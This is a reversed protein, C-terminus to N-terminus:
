KQWAPTWRHDWCRHQHHYSSCVLSSCDITPSRTTNWRLWVDPILRLLHDGCRHHFRRVTNSFILFLRMWMALSSNKPSKGEISLVCYVLLYDCSRKKAAIILFIAFGLKLFYIVLKSYRMSWKRHYKIDGAKKLDENADKCKQSTCKKEFVNCMAMITLTILLLYIGVQIGGIIKCQKLKGM